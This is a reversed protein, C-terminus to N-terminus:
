GGWPYTQSEITAKLQSATATRPNVGATKLAKFFEWMLLDTNRRGEYLSIIDALPVDYTENDVAIRVTNVDPKTVVM